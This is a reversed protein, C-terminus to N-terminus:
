ASGARRDHRQRSVQRETHFEGLLGALPKDALLSITIVNGEDRLPMVVSVNSSPYNQTQLRNFTSNGLELRQPTIPHTVRKM